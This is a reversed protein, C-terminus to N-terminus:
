GFMERLGALFGDTTKAAELTGMFAGRLQFVGDRDGAQALEYAVKRADRMTAADGVPPDRPHEAAAGEPDRENGQENETEKRNRKFGAGRRQRRPVPCSLETKATKTTM